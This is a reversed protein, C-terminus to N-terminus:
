DLSRLRRLARADAALHKLAKHLAEIMFDLNDRRSVFPPSLLASNGTTKIHLGRDFM